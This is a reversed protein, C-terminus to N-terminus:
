ADNTTSERHTTELNTGDITGSGDVPVASDAASDASDINSSWGVLACSVDFGRHLAISLRRGFKTAITPPASLLASAAAAAASATVAARGPKSVIPGKLVWDFRVQQLLSGSATMSVPSAIQLALLYLSYHSNRAYLAALQLAANLVLL